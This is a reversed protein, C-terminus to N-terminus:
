EDIKQRIVKLFAEAQDRQKKAEEKSFTGNYECIVITFYRVHTYYFQEIFKQLDSIAYHSKNKDFVEDMASQSEEPTSYISAWQAKIYSIEGRCYEIMERSIKSKNFFNMGKLRNEEIKKFSDIKNDLFCHTISYLYEQFCDADNRM